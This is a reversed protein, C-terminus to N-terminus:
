SVANYTFVPCIRMKKRERKYNVKKKPNHKTNLELYTLLKMFYVSKNYAVYKKLEVETNSLKEM